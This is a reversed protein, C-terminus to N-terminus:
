AMFRGPNDAPKVRNLKEILVTRRKIRIGAFTKPILRKPSEPVPAAIALRAEAMTTNMTLLFIRFRKALEEKSDRMVIWIATAQRVPMITDMIVIMTLISPSIGSIKILRRKTIIKEAM